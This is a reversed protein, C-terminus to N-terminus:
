ELALGGELLYPQRTVTMEVLHRARYLKVKEFAGLSPIVRKISGVRHPFVTGGKFRPGFRLRETGRMTPRPVILRQIQIVRLELPELYAL